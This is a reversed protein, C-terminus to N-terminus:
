LVVIVLGCIILLIGARGKRTLRENLFIYALLVTFVVSSKVIATVVSVIGIEIAIYMLINFVGTLVGSIVNDKINKSSMKLEKIQISDKKKMAFFFCWLVITVIFIRLTTTEIPSVSGSDAKAVVNSLAMLVPSVIGWIIGKRIRSNDKSQFSYDKKGVVLLTGTILFFTGLLMTLTIKEGIMTYAFLMTAVINFKDLAAVISVDIYYIALMYTLWSLGQIVGSALTICMTRDPMNALDRNDGIVYGIIFITVTTISLSIAGYWFPNQGEIGSKRYVAAVASIFCAAFSLGIWM